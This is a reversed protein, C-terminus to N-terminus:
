FKKKLINSSSKSLFLKITDIIEKLLEEEFKESNLCNDLLKSFLTFATSSGMVSNFYFILEPTTNLEKFSQLLLINFKNDKALNEIIAVNNTYSEKMYDYKKIDKVFTNLLTINYKSDKCYNKLLEIIDRAYKEVIGEEFCEHKRKLSNTETNFYAVGIGDRVIIDKGKVSHGGHRYLHIFEHIITKIMKAINENNIKKLSIILNFKIDDISIIGEDDSVKFAHTVAANSTKLSDDEMYNNLVNHAVDLVTDNTVYINLKKLISPLLKETLEQDFLMLGCTSLALLDIVYEDLSENVNDIILKKCKKFLIEM